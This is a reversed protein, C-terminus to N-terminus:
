LAPSTVAPRPQDQFEVDRLAMVFAGLAFLAASGGYIWIPMSGLVIGGLLPGAIQAFSDLSSSLGMATGQEWPKVSRSLFSNLIGRSCAAGFSVGCLILAFQTQNQVAGLLLYVPVFLGLGLLTTKRDGLRRRLPVFVAFRIFVRVVGALMLLRGVEGADLGLRLNAFLSVSSIYIMFSLTHFAWQILLYRATPNAWVKRRRESLNAETDATNPRRRPPEGTTVRQPQVVLLPHSEELFFWTMAIAVLTMGAAMLGPALIGWRFLLGGLGPGVLSSLVHAVGINSMQESRQQPPVVDGVIAKAIPYNGGFIGDIIRSAFMMTLSNSFAMILFGILTGIQSILLMPKRGYRDSLSGWIPGSFFSFLANTSLLLGIKWPSAGFEQGFFPLFPILISFGLIDVFVSIWLPRLKPFETKSVQGIRGEGTSM